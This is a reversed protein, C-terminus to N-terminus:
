YITRFAYVDSIDKACIQVIDKVGTGGAVYVIRGRNAANCTGASQSDLTLNKASLVGDHRVGIWRGWTAGGDNSTGIAWVYDTDNTADGFVMAQWKTGQLSVLSAKRGNGTSMGLSYADAADTSSLGFTLTADANSLSAGGSTVGGSGLAAYAGGNLSAKLTHSTADACLRAKGSPALSGCANEGFELYSGIAGTSTSVSLSSFAGSINLAAPFVNAPITGTTLQSANLNTVGSGNGSL